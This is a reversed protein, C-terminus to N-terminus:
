LPAGYSPGANRVPAYVRKKVQREQRPVEAQPTERQPIVASTRTPSSSSIGRYKLVTPETLSHFAYVAGAFLLFVFGFLAAVAPITDRYEARLPDEGAFFGLAVM